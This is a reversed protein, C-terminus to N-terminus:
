RVYGLSRLREIMEQDLPKNARAVAPRQPSGYTAVARAPYASTFESSFLGILAKGSLDDAVPLGLAYLLTPAVDLQSGSVERSSSTRRGRAALRGDAVAGVRGPQTVVMVVEDGQPELTSYSALLGDLIVYYGTIAGLRESLTSAAISSPQDGLLTHQVIDLGPLYVVSLDTTSSTVTKQLELHLADLEISRRILQAISGDPSGPQVRLAREVARGKLAPWQARLEAYMSAPAMEADLDGGHELRLTARDSLVIANTSTAPWTVWWNVVATRLGAEAAVEWFTKARRESGSVIAPQTLRLLDTVHRLAAWAGARDATAMAGGVGPVRRTELGRVGHVNAPQGTAVTTWIRAPDPSGDPAAALRAGAGSFAASLTPVRHAADLEAFVRPDFGDIAIVKVRVGSPVVTLPAHRNASPNAAGSWTFLLVAGGFAVAGVITTSRWSRQRPTGGVDVFAILIASAVVAVAHGLLLSIAAAIALASATWLPASWGVDAIVARWWFTFYALCTVAVAAGALRALLHARKATAAPAMRAAGAIALAACLTAMTMAAAFAVGLYLAVVFADRPGTILGPVRAGVGLTAAPGLLLAALVGVRFASLLTFVLPRRTTRAPGLVFRDVGADLYGLARLRQRLEDVARVRQRDDTVRPDTEVM